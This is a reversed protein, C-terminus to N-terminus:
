RGQTDQNNWHGMGSITWNILATLEEDASRCRRTTRPSILENRVDQACSTVEQVSNMYVGSSFVINDSALFLDDTPM